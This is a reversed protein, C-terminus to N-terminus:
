YAAQYIALADAESVDRPNNVLLRTQKMADAAMVPLDSEGIGVERLTQELGIDASLAELRNIFEDVRQTEPVSALDPFADPALTAYADACADANFRMVHPLVLANSLGHPVHFIGGIPYALAHVAAVPSNAFAQGALMAGLLMNSRAQVNRGDKVATEINAGLLRLAERALTRSVPNNNASASTYSEIAHVMSDVGTAATVPAPLGLTLEADLLAVDPLLQPAVVGKKEAEGVTIISIPTVESGTGATTPIQILPLRQGKAMGVGYIDDLKEGGGMLLAILKAIDMSSGGGFGIVGDINAARAEALAAEVVAVPPDAVVGDFVQYEVGAQDLSDTASTLLGAKILGPDTVILVRKGIQEKVIAGLKRIAGPECIVSKTTNFTFATM